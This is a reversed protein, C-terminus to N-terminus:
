IEDCGQSADCTDCTDCALPVLAKNLIARKKHALMDMLMIIVMDQFFRRQKLLQTFLTWVLKRRQEGICCCWVVVVFSRKGLFAIEWVLLHEKSQQCFKNQFNISYIPLKNLQPTSNTHM